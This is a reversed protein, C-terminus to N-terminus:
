QYIRLVSSGTGHVEVTEDVGPVPVPLDFPVTLAVRVVYGEVTVDATLGPHDDYAGTARLYEEVAGRAAEPSITVYDAGPDAYVGAAAAADTAALAAGDALNTVGQRRLYAASADTVAAIALLLILAFIVLMATVQGRESAGRISRGTM